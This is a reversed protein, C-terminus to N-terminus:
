PAYRVSAVKAGQLTLLPVTRADSGTVPKLAARIAEAATTGLEKGDGDIFRLRAADVVSQAGSTDRAEFTFTKATEDYAARLPKFWKIGSVDEFETAPQRAPQQSAAGSGPLRVEAIPAELPSAPTPLLGGPAVKYVWV